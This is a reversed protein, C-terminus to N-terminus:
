PRSEAPETSAEEAVRTEASGAPSARRRTQVRRLREVMTTMAPLASVVGRDLRGGTGILLTSLNRREPLLELLFANGKDSSSDLWQADTHERLYETGAAILMAGPGYKAYAEDYATRFCFIGDGSRLYCQMAISSDGVNVCLLVVRGAAAWRPFWERFWAATHPDRGFALGGDQGKWGTAELVLFEEVVAPDLTRDVVRVEAGADRTLARRRKGLQRQREKTLPNEWKGGRNVMGRDWVEKTFVPFGREESAGRLCQAVPGDNNVYDVVLIGPWGDNKAADHLGDLLAGVARRAHGADVIPTGVPRLATPRGRSVAVKRPPIRPEEFRVIPLVGRFVDDEHAIVLTTDAYDEFHKAALILFDSEFAPNPEVARETLSQWAREDEATLAHVKVLRTQM